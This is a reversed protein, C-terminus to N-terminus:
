KRLICLLSHSVLLKRFSLVYIINAIGTVFYKLTNKLPIETRIVPANQMLAVDFGVKFAMKRMSRPTFATLHYPPNFGQQSLKKAYLLYPDRIKVLNRVFGLLLTFNTNPVVIVCIGGENLREHVLHLVGLPDALHEFVNLLTIVDYLQRHSSLFSELTSNVIELGYKEKAAECASSIPEVGMVKFGEESASRLFKGTGSGLDLLKAGSKLRKRIQAVISANFHDQYADWQKEHGSDFGEYVKEFEHDRPQIRSYYLGSSTCRVVPYVIGNSEKRTVVEYQDGSCLRCNVEIM